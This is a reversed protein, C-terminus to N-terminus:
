GGGAKFLSIFSIGIIFNLPTIILVNIISPIHPEQYAAIRLAASGYNAVGLVAMGLGNFFDQIQELIPVDFGSIQDSQVSINEMTKTDTPDIIWKQPEHYVQAIGWSIFSYFTIVALIMGIATIHHGDSM